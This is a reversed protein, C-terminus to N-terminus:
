RSTALKALQRLYDPSVGVHDALQEVIEAGYRAPDDIATQTRHGIDYAVLLCGRAVKAEM